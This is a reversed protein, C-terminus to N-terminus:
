EFYFTRKKIITYDSIPFFTATKQHPPTPPSHINHKFALLYSLCGKQLISLKLNIM